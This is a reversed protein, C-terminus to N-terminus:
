QKEVAFNTGRVRRLTGNYTFKRDQKAKGWIHLASIVREKARYGAAFQSAAEKEFNFTGPTEAVEGVTRDTPYGVGAPQVDGLGPIL